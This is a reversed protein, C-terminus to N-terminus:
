GRVRPDRRLADRLVSLGREWPAARLSPDAAEALIRPLERADLAESPDRLRQPSHRVVGDWGVVLAGEPQAHRGLAPLVMVREEAEVLMEPSLHTALHVRVRGPGWRWPQADMRGLVLSWAPLDAGSSRPRLGAAPAGNVAPATWLPYLGAGPGHTAGLAVHLDRVAALGGPSSVLGPGLLSVVRRAPGLVASLWELQGLRVGAREALEVLGLGGLPGSASPADPGALRRVLAAALAADGGPRLPVWADVLSAGLLADGVSGPLRARALAPDPQPDILVVQAGARRAQALAPLLAPFDRALRAGWVWVLEAGLIAELPAIPPSTPESFAVILAADVPSALVEAAPGSSVEAASALARWADHSAGAPAALWARGERPTSRLSAALARVAEEVPLARLGRDGPRLEYALDLRGLAALSGADLARLRVVDAVDVPALPPLAHLLAARWGPACLHPGGLPAQSLGRAGLGCGECVAERVLDRAVASGLVDLLVRAAGRGQGAGVEPPAVARQAPAVGAPM